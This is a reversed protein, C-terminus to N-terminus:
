SIETAEQEKQCLFVANTLAAIYQQPRVEREEGAENQVMGNAGIILCAGEREESMGEEKRGCPRQGTGEAEMVTCVVFEKTLTQIRSQVILELLALITHTQRKGGSGLVINLEYLLCYSM